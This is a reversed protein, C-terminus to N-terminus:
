SNEESFTESDDLIEIENQSSILNFQDKGDVQIKIMKDTPISEIVTATKGNCSGTLIKIRQGNKASIARLKDDPNLKRQLFGTYECECKRRRYCYESWPIRENNFREEDEWAEFSLIKIHDNEEQWEKATKCNWVPEQGAIKCLEEYPTLEGYGIKKAWKDVKFYESEKLGFGLNLWLDIEEQPYCLEWYEELLLRAKKTNETLQPISDAILLLMTNDINEDLNDLHDNYDGYDSLTFFTPYWLSRQQWESYDWGWELYRLSVEGTDNIVLVEQKDIDRTLKKWGDLILLEEIQKLLEKAKKDQESLEELSLDDLKM